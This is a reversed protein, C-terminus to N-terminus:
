GGQSIAYLHKVLPSPASAVARDMTDKVCIRQLAFIKLDRDPTEAGCVRVAAFSLRGLLEEAGDTTTLNLDGDRVAVHRVEGYADRAVYVEAASATQCWLMVGTLGAFLYANM